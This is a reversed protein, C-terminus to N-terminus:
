KRKTETPKRNANALAARVRFALLTRNRKGMNGIGDFEGFKVNYEWGQRVKSQDNGGNPGILLFYSAWDM